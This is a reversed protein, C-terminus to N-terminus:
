EEEGADLECENCILEGNHHCMQDTWWIWCCYACVDCLDYVQELVYDCEEATTVQCTEGEFELSYEGFDKDELRQKDESWDVSGVSDEFIRDALKDLKEKDM